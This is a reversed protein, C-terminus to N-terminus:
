GAVPDRVLIGIPYEKEGGGPTLDVVLQDINRFGNRLYLGMAKPVAELYIRHGTKDAQENGWAIIQQALGQRQYSPHTAVSAVV